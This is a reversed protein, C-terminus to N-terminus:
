RAPLGVMRRPYMGGQIVWRAHCESGSEACVALGSGVHLTTLASTVRRALQIYLKPRRVRHAPIRRGECELEVDALSRRGCPLWRHPHNGLAAVLARKRANTHTCARICSTNSRSTSTWSMLKGRRHRPSRCRACAEQSKASASALRFCGTHHSPTASCAQNCRAKMTFLSLATRRSKDVASVDSGYKILIKM